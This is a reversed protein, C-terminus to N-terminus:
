AGRGAERGRAFEAVVPLHDSARRAGASTWASASLVTLDGRYLIHDLQVVPFRAPWTRARATTQLGDGLGRFARSRETCNLDGLVITARAGLAAAIAAVQAPREGRRVSLHTNVVDIEGAVEAEGPGSWALRTVLARRPESRRMGAGRYPLRLQETAILPWRTLTAIGYRGREDDLCPAFSASMGLRAGLDAAQDISDSRLRRDDVEQLAVVDPGYSRIVAAIRGLDIRDDAGRGARINYTMVRLPM